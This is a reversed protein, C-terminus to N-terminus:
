KRFEHMRYIKKALSGAFFRRFFARNEKPLQGILDEPTLDWNRLFRLGGEQDLERPDDIGWVQTVGVENIPNKYKTAKAGFVTYVDMALRIQRFHGALDRFFGALEQRQLYMSVGEMVVIANGGKPVSELWVPSRIDGPLMRYTDTERFYKRREDIVQPFDVDFWLRDPMETRLCRSDLGCGIHLIVADSQQAAAERLWRDFVACRMGMNFSLWKSSAKRGLPFGETDWIAEASPDKILLGRRSVWARGYLPIYLTKNVPDM